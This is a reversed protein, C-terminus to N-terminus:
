LKFRLGAEVGFALPQATRISRPQGAAFYYRMSPDIYIGLFDLPSYEIGLGAKVSTQIGSVNRTYFLSEGDFTGTYRNRICKEVAGGVTAYANWRKSRFLNFYIDLPIGIYHQSNKMEASCCWGDADYYTGTVKKNLLTYSLGVGVGLWKTISYKVGVGFSIPLSYTDSNSGEVFEKGTPTRNGKSSLRVPGSSKQPGVFSNGGVSLEFPRRRASQRRGAKRGSEDEMDPIDMDDRNLVGTEPVGPDSTGSGGTDSEKAAPSDTGSDSTESGDMGTEGKDSETGDATKAAEAGALSRQNVGADAASRGASALVDKKSSVEKVAFPEVEGPEAIGSSEGDVIGGGAEVAAVASGSTKDPLFYTIGLVIAVAAAASSVAALWRGPVVVGRRGRVSDLKSEVEAWIRDSAEPSLQEGPESLIERIRRDFQEDKMQM